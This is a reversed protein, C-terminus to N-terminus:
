LIRLKQILNREKGMNRGMKSSGKIFEVMQIFINVREQVSGMMMIAEIFREMGTFTYEKAMLNTM